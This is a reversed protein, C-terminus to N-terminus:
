HGACFSSSVGFFTKLAKPLDRQWLGWTHEGEREMYRTSAQKEELAQYVQRNRALLDVIGQHTPVATESQGISQYIRLQSINEQEAILETTQPLFAGSQSLVAQCYQPYTLAFHLSATAGLSAGGMVWDKHNSSVPHKEKLLPFLEDILFRQHAHFHKGQPSYEAVRNEKTVPLAISIFPRLRQETILQNAQTILRGLFFYDPGDHLLLVPLDQVHDIQPPYSIFIEKEQQLFTSQISEKKIIRNTM